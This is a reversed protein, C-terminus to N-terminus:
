DAITGGAVIANVVLGNSLRNWHGDRPSVQLSPGGADLHAKFLPETDVVRAGWSRAQEMLRVRAPDQSARGARLADMDCGVVFTFHRSKYPELREFFVRLVASSQREGVCADAAAPPAGTPKLGLLATARTVLQRPNLRLHTFLYQALASHRLLKTAADQSGQIHELRPQLTARDLCAAHVNGSGCLSQLIDGREVIVIFNRVAWQSDAFRIREAYDLLSSGPGGMAFVPRGQLASELQAALRERLPLMSAEVYSDGIVAVARSDRVFDRDAVFGFNNAHQRQARELAWGFSTTFDHRPPYTLINPDIRYGTQTTTSVPLCRLLLELVLLLATAGGFMAALRSAM